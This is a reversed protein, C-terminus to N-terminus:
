NSPRFTWARNLLFSCATVAATAALQSLWVAAGEERLLALGAGNVLWCIAAVVVYRPASTRHPLGSRFTHAAVDPGPPNSM